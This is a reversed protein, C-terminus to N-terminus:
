LAEEDDVYELRAHKGDVRPEDYTMALDSDSYGATTMDVPIGIIVLVGFAANIIAAIQQNLVAFDWQYGFPTAVTQILLLVAPVISLWFAKNKIRVKWNFQM